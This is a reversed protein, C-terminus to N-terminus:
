FGTTLANLFSLVDLRTHGLGELWPLQQGTNLAFMASFLNIQPNASYGLAVAGSVLPVSFSTGWAGAYQGFPFSTILAEGPAGLRATPWGYNSFSSRLDALDTSGVSIVGGIAAPYVLIHQGENGAAAVCIVNNANAYRIAQTLAPSTTTSSFSMNIVNAGNDVAYYIASVVDSLNGTGDSHFARLPMIQAGPAVLHILGSVM